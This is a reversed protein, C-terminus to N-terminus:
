CSIAAYRRWDEHLSIAMLRRLLLLTTDAHILTHPTHLRTVDSVSAAYSPTDASNFGAFLPLTDAYYM